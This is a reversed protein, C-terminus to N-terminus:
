KQTSDVPRLHFEGELSANSPHIEGIRLSSQQGSKDQIQLAGDVELAIIRVLKYSDDIGPTSIQVWEGMFALNDQLAQLYIERSLRKRTRLLEEIVDHLLEWRDVPAGLVAEVCTAPYPNPNLHDWNVPPVSKTAVNIGIGLITAAFENGVWQNEVLVGSLKKGAVLVDNPWKIKAPLQYKKQLVRCVALAGLGYLRSPIHDAASRDKFAEIRLVISFALASGAPTYWKHGDRGRGATQEDAVVLALDSCGLKVWNAADENTSPVQQFFRIGGLPLDKLLTELYRQNM